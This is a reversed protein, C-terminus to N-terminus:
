FGDPQSDLWDMFAKMRMVYVPPFGDPDIQRFARDESVLIEAGAAVYCDTFKNDDPDDPVLWWHYYVDQHMVNPLVMLFEMLNRSVTASTEEEAKEAYESLIDNSVVLLFKGDKLAQFIPRYPSQKGLSALLINTDLVVKKM